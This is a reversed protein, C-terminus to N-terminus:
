LCDHSPIKKPGAREGQDNDAATANGAGLLLLRRLGVPLLPQLQLIPLMGRGALHACFLRARMSGFSLQLRIGCEDVAGQSNRARRRIRVRDRSFERLLVRGVVLEAKLASTPTSSGGLM